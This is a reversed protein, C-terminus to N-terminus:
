LLYRPPSLLFLLSRGVPTGRAPLTLGLVGAKKVVLHGQQTGTLLQEAWAGLDPMHGVLALAAHGQGRWRSLFRLFARFDGGPALHPSTEPRRGLGAAHLIDATQVARVLPSTLIADFRIGLAKLRRAVARTRKVGATTLPRLGDDKSAHHAEGALGHRVLYLHVSAVTLFSDV